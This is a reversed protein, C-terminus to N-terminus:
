IKTDRELNKTETETEITETETKTKDKDKIFHWPSSKCIQLTRAVSAPRVEEELGKGKSLLEAKEEASATAQATATQRMCVCTDMCIHM